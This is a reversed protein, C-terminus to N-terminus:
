SNSLSYRPLVSFTHVSDALLLPPGQQLSTSPPAVHPDPVLFANQATVPPSHDMLTPILCPLHTHTHILSLIASLMLFSTTAPPRTGSTQRNGKLFNLNIKLPHKEHFHKLCLGNVKQIRNPLNQKSEM